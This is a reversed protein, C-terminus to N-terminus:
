VALWLCGSGHLLGEGVGQGGIVGAAKTAYRPEVACRACLCQRLRMYSNHAYAAHARPRSFRQRAAAYPANRQNIHVVYGLGVDVALKVGGVACQPLGFRLGHALANGAVVRGALDTRYIVKYLGIVPRGQQGCGNISHYVCAVLHAGFGGHCRPRPM